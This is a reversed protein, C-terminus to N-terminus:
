DRGGHSLTKNFNQENEKRSKFHLHSQEQSMGPLLLDTDPPGKRQEARLRGEPLFQGGLGRPPLGRRVGTLVGSGREAAPPRRTRLLGFGCGSGFVRVRRPYTRRSNQTPIQLNNISMRPQQPSRSWVTVKLSVIKVKGAKGGLM